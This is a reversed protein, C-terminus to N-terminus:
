TCTSNLSFQSHKKLIFMIKESDYCTHEKEFYGGMFETCKDWRKQSEYFTTSAM